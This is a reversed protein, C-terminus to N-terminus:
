AAWESVAYEALGNVVCTFPDRDVLVARPFTSGILQAFAPIQSSGGTRTVYEVEDPDVDAAAVADLLCAGVADLDPAILSEFDRRSVPVRLDFGARRFEFVADEAVSLEVKVAEIAKYFAWAQGGFLLDGIQRLLADHGQGLYETLAAPVGDDALLSKLGSLSRLRHQLMSPLHRTQGDPRRFSADLGLAPRILADFLKADFEEGGIAIGDLSLVNGRSGVVDIVAVDFTGGGFDACVTIGSDIEDLAVAARSEAILEVDTFGARAAATRLRQCALAQRVAFEPGAAGAFRVPHGLVVRRVDAGLQRDAIRKLTSLVAAVMDDLQFDVGWSHTHEFADDALDAKVQSLLRSDLCFGRPRRQECVLDCSGCSTRHSSVDLFGRLASSGALRNGDRNLYVLSPLVTRGQELEMVQTGGDDYAVALASNTTGFDIGYAIPQMM